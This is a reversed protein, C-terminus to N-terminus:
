ERAGHQRLLDAIDTKGEKVALQLPTGMFKANANVEAGHALLFQAAEINGYLIACHLPTITGSSSNVDEGHSVLMKLIKVRNSVAAMPIPRDREHLCRHVYLLEVLEERGRDPGSRIADFMPTECGTDYAPVRWKLFRRVTPLDRKAVAWRFDGSPPLGRYVFFGAAVATALLTVLLQMRISKM